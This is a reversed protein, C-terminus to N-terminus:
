KIEEQEKDKGFKLNGNEEKTLDHRWGSKISDRYGPQLCNHYSCYRIWKLNTHQCQNYNHNASICTKDSYEYTSQLGTMVNIGPDPIVENRYDVFM